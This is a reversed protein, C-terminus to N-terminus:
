RGGITLRNKSRNFEFTVVPTKTDPDIFEQTEVPEDPNVISKGIFLKVDDPIGAGIILRRLDGLTLQERKNM